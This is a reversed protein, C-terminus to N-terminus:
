RAWSPKVHIIKNPCFGPPSNVLGSINDVLGWGERRRQAVLCESSPTPQQTPEWIPIDTCNNV